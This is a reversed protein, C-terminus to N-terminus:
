VVAKLKTTLKMRAALILCAAIGVCIGSFVGQYRFGTHDGLANLIAGNIPPGALMCLGVGGYNLGVRAGIEHPESIQSICAPVLSVLVGVSLGYLVSFAILTEINNMPVWMALLLLSCTFCSTVLLNFRGLKDGLAGVLRGVTSGANLFSVTYAALDPSAGLRQANTPLFFFPMFMALSMITGSSAFLAYVPERLPKFLGRWPAPKKRPLRTRILVNGIAFCGLCIFGCVRMTWGFGIKNILRAIAIPWITGGLGSGTFVVGMALARKRSFWHSPVAVITNFILASAIGFLVGQCLMFQYYQTCLSTLMLSLTFLIAGPILLAHAGFADFLRGSFLGGSFLLFLQISGIWAIEDPTRDALQHTEYHRQFVGFANSLGFQAFGMFASGAVTLWAKTGGDPNPGPGVPPETTETELQPTLTGPTSAGMKEDGFETHKTMLTPKDSM